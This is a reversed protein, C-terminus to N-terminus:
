LGLDKKVQEWPIAKTGGAEMEALIKESKQVDVRDEMEELLALDELPVLAAINKGRRRLIIRERGHIVRKITDAFEERARSTKPRKAAVKSM